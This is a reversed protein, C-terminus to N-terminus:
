LRWLRRRVANWGYSRARPCVANRYLQAPERVAGNLFDSLVDIPLKLEIGRDGRQHLKHVTEIFKLYIFITPTPIFGRASNAFGHFGQQDQKCWEGRVNGLLEPGLEAMRFTKRSM